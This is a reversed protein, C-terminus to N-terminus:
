LILAKCIALTYVLLFSSRTLIQNILLISFRVEDISIERGM